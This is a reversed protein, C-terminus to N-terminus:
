VCLVCCHRSSSSDSSPRVDKVGLNCLTEFMREKLFFEMCPGQFTSGHAREEDILTRILAVFHSPLSSEHFSSVDDAFTLLLFRISLETYVVILYISEGGNSDLYYAKISKWHDRFADLPTVARPAIYSTISNLWDM